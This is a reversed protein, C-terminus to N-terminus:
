NFMEPFLTGAVHQSNFSNVSGWGVGVGGGGRGVNFYRPILFLTLLPPFLFRLSVLWLGIFVAKCRHLTSFWPAAVGLSAPWMEGM